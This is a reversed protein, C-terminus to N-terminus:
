IEKGSSKNIRVKEKIVKYGIKVGKNSASDFSLNSIHIPM